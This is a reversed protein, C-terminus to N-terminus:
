RVSSTRRKKSPSGAIGAGSSARVRGKGCQGGSADTNSHGREAGLPASPHRRLTTKTRADSPLYWAPELLHLADIPRLADLISELLQKVGTV